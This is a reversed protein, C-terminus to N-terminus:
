TLAALSLFSRRGLVEEDKPAQARIAILVVVFTTALMLLKHSTKM